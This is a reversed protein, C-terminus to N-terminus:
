AMTQSSNPTPHSANKKQIIFGHWEATRLLPLLQFPKFQNLLNLIKGPITCVLSLFTADPNPTFLFPISRDMLTTTGNLSVMLLSLAVNSVKSLAELLLSQHFAKRRRM